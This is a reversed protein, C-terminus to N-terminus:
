AWVKGAQPATLSSTYTGPLSCVLGLSRSSNPTPPHFPEWGDHCCAAEATKGRVGCLSLSPLAPFLLHSHGLFGSATSVWALVKSFSAPCFHPLEEPSSGGWFVRPQQQCWWLGAGQSWWFTRVGTTLAVPYKGGVWM